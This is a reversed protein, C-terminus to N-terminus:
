RRKKVGKKNKTKKSAANEPQKAKNKKAANTSSPDEHQEEEDAGDSHSDEDHARTPSSEDSMAPEEDSIPNDAPHASEVATPNPDTQGDHHSSKEETWSVEADVAHAEKEVNQRQLKRRTARDIATM